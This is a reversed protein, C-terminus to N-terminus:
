ILENEIYDVFEKSRLVICQDKQEKYLIDIGYKKIICM